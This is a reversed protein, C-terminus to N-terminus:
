VARLGALWDGNMHDIWHSEVKWGSDRALTHLDDLSLFLWADPESVREGYQLQSVTLGPPRGAEINARVYDRSLTLGPARIDISDCWLWAGHAAAHRMRRLLTLTGKWSGTLGINNGFLMFTDISKAQLPTTLVDLERVDQAGRAQAVKVAQPACDVGTAQIGRAELALLTRGAGCGIDWTKGRAEAIAQAEWPEPKPEFYFGMDYNQTLGDERRIVLPRDTMGSWYGAVAEGFIYISTTM